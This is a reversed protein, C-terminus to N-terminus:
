WWHTTVIRFEGTPHGGDSWKVEVNEIISFGNGQSIRAIFQEVAEREGIAKAKVDGDHHNEVTGSIGLDDAIDNIFRRFGIGQVHGRISIHATVIPM